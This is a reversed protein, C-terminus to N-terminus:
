PLKGKIVEEIVKGTEEARRDWSHELEVVERGRRGMDKRMEPNHYLYAVAKALAVHDGPAIVIGCNKNRVLDAQGPFDTVVAPVGCALTEYLKLPSLGTESRGGKNNKPILGALGNAVVGPVENYPIKGLYIVKKNSKSAKEVMPREVGDGVIVLSIEQPWEPSKVAKLVTDIGQWRALAGFFIVYPRSLVYQSNADPHFLETNAGNPIVYVPKHGVKKEVWGKLEFTVVILANATKMPALMLAKFLPKFYVTWPYALFLDDYPSNVELVIPIGYLRCWLVIPLAVPHGRVYLVNMCHSKKWLRFQVSLFKCCKTLLSPPEGKNDYRPSFLEVEWGRRKLGSIIEHVHTYSAHGEQTSELCLYAIKGKM